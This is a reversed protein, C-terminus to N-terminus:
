RWRARRAPWGWTTTVVLSFVYSGAVLGSVTPAAVTKSSFVAAAPGSVQAWAYASVTGDADTGSGALAASSAPLTVNQGAGAYAVPAQNGAAPVLVEVADVKAQDVGGAAALASFDLNLVGDAVTVAFTESTATLPGVKKVIDYRALVKVGEAAVDFVRQGPQTWYLEAFHLVVTYKGNSVPLAYGFTGFRETQYLPGNATGAVAAGTAFASGGNYYADAAFAGISTNLAGGGAHLRYVATGQAWVSIPMVVWFLLIALSAKLYRKHKWYLKHEM